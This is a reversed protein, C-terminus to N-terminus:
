VQSLYVWETELECESDIISILGSSLRPTRQMCSVPATLSNQGTGPKGSLSRPSSWLTSLSPLTTTRAPLGTSM